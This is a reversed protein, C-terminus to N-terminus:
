AGKQALALLRAMQRRLQDDSVPIGRSRLDALVKGAVDDEGTQELNAAVVERAYHDAAEGSMGMLEAAWLGLMRDRRVVSRFREDQDHQYKAEFSRRRDDFTTM